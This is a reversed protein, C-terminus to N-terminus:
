WRKIQLASESFQYLKTFLFHGIEPGVSELLHARVTKEIGELDRLTEPDSEEYLIQAAEQLCAKLREQKQTDM